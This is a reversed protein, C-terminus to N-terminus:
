NSVRMNSSTPSSMLTSRDDRTFTLESEHNEFGEAFRVYDFQIEKFGLTAAEKAININYEWVEMMYPNVFNAKASNEWLTGDAKLFSLDPRMKALENDKFVVIRAIPYINHEEFTKMVKDIDMMTKYKGKGKLEPNGPEFTIFGTDEKVDLVVANLETDDTLQILKDFRASGASYGTMYLGKVAPTEPQPDVKWPVSADITEENLLQNIEDGETQESTNKNTQSQEQFHVAASVIQEITVPQDSPGEINSFFFLIIALILEM